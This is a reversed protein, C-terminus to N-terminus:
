KFNFEFAADTWDFRPQPVSPSSCSVAGGGDHLCRERGREEDSRDFGDSLGGDWRDRRPGMDGVEAEGMVNGGGDEVLVVSGVLGKLLNEGGGDVFNEDQGEAVAVHAVAGGGGVGYQVM